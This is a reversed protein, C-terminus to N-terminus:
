VYRCYSQHLLETNLTLIWIELRTVDRDTSAGTNEERPEAVDNLLKTQKVKRATAANQVLAEHCRKRRGM